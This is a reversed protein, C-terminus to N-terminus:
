GIVSTCITEGKSRRVVSEFNIVENNESINNVANASDGEIDIANETANIITNSYIQNDPGIDEINLSLKSNAITNNHV